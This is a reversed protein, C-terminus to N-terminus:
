KVEEPLVIFGFAIAARLICGLSALLLAAIVTSWFFVILIQVLVFIIQM